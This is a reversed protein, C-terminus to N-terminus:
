YSWVTPRPFDISTPILDLHLFRGTGKQQVGIGTFGLELALQLLRHSEAGQVGIDAAMGSAHAGPKGKAVEIPHKPCRYGSTIKMPKNYATRLQQLRDMFEPKMENAGCHSCKFEDATFNKYKGWDMM